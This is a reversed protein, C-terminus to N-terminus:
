NSTLIHREKDSITNKLTVKGIKYNLIVSEKTASLIFCADNNFCDSINAFNFNTKNESIETFVSTM